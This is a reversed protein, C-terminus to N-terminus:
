LRKAEILITKHPTLPLPIIKKFIVNIAKIIAENYHNRPIKLFELIGCPIYSSFIQSINIIKFSKSKLVSIILNKDIQSIHEPHRDKFISLFREEPFTIIIIDYTTECINELIKYPLDLHELVESCLAIKAKRNLFPLKRIDCLIYNINNGRYAVNLAKEDVDFGVYFYQLYHKDLLKGYIGLGCGLDLIIFEEDKCYKLISKLVNVYREEYYWSGWYGRNVTHRLLFGYTKNFM